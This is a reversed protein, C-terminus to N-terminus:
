DEITEEEMRERVNGTRKGSADGGEIKECDAVQTDFAALDLM